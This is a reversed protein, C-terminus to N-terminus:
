GKVRAWPTRQRLRWYLEADTEDADREWPRSQAGGDFHRIAPHEIAERRVEEGFVDASWPSHMVQNTCNWRPHLRSRAHALVANMPDQDPFLLHGPHEAIYALAADKNTSLDFFWEPDGNSVAYELVKECMGDARLRELDMLMVGTGFYLAPSSLGLAQCHKQGWEPAPFVTTVAAVSNGALDAEWLPRITNKVVLDCDLYLVRELEPLLDPLLVRHWLVAPAFRDAGHLRDREVLHTVLEGGAEVLISALKSISECDLGEHFLHVRVPNPESDVLSRLM